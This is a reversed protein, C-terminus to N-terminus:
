RNKTHFLTNAYMEYLINPSITQYVDLSGWKDFLGSEVRYSDVIINHIVGSRDFYTM